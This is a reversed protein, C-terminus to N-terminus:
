IFILLLLILLSVLGTVLLLKPKKLILPILNIIVITAGVIVNSTLNVM